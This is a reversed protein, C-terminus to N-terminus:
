RGWFNPEAGREPHGAYQNEPYPLGLNERLTSGEYQTRFVGRKQLIPVVQDVFDDFGGPMYAASIVFGDAAKERFWTELTDAVQEPAGVVLGGTRQAAVRKALQGITLNDREAWDVIRARTSKANETEPIPPLPGDIDHGSLDVGGLFSELIGLALEPHVLENLEEILAKAEAETGGVVPKLSPLVKLHDPDRGGAAVEGKIQTYFAQASEVTPHSTFIAEAFRTAFARGTDSSGAQVLVPRGQPSRPVNLPGYSRVYRGAYNQAHLKDPDAFRGAAKDSLIAGEEFSDWLGLVLEVFETARAYREAHAMNQDLGYNHAENEGTSTVMNWGARGGSLQDISAFQRALTYPLSYTTSGTAILGLNTTSGVLAALLTLPDLKITESRSFISKNRVRSFGSVDAFFLADFLGRETAAAAQQYYALSGEGGTAAKPHRWGGLHSGTNLLMHFLKMTGPRRDTM